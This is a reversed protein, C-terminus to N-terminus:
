ESDQAFLAHRIREIVTNVSVRKICANSRLPCLGDTTGCAACPVAASILLGNPGWPRWFNHLAIQSFIAVVPTGVLSAVHAPGSDLCLLLDIKEVHERLQRPTLQGCLMDASVGNGLRACLDRALACEGLAGYVEFRAGFEIAMSNMVAAFRELPWQKVPQKSFPAVGILLRSSHESRSRPLAAPAITSPRGSMELAEVVCATAAEHQHWLDGRQLRWRHLARMPPLTPSATLGFPFPLGLYWCLAIRKLRTLLSDGAYCLVLAFTPQLGKLYGVLERRSAPSRLRSSNYRIVEDILGSEIEFLGENTGHDQWAPSFSTATLLLIRAGPFASRLKRLAPIAVVFDGFFGNRIVVIAKAEAGQSRSRSSNFLAVLLVRSFQWYLNDLLMVLRQAIRSGWNSGRINSM